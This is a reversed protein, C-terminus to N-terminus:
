EESAPQTQAPGREILRLVRAHLGISNLFAIEERQGPQFGEEPRKVEVFRGYVGRGDQRAAYLFLDPTGRVKGRNPDLHRAFLAKLREHGCVQFLAHLVSASPLSSKYLGMLPRSEVLCDNLQAETLKLWSAKPEPGLAVALGNWLNPGLRGGSFTYGPMVRKRWRVLVINEPIARKEGRGKPDLLYTVHGGRKSPAQRGYVVHSVHLPPKKLSPDDKM